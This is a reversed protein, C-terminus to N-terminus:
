LPQPYLLGIIQNEKQIKIFNAQKYDEHSMTYGIANAVSNASAQINSKAYVLSTMCFFVIMTLIIYKKM